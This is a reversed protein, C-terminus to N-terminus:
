VLKDYMHSKGLSKIKVRECIKEVLKVIWDEAQPHVMVSLIYQSLNSIKIFKETERKEKEFSHLIGHIAKEMENLINDISLKKGENAKDFDFSVKLSLLRDVLSKYKYTLIVRKENEHKFAIRKHYFPGIANKTESLISEQTKLVGGEDLDYNVDGVIAFYQGSSDFNNIQSRIREENSEIRIAMKDYSYIKWLADSEPTKSWCQGYCLWRATWLKIFNEMTSYVDNPSVKEHLVQLVNKYKLTDELLRLMYGEYTDEWMTPRVFRETESEVLNVFCPFSIIRYLPEM